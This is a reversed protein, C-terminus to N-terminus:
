RIVTVRGIFQRTELTPLRVIIKYSYVDIPINDLIGRSGDGWRADYNNTRFIQEGWRNFIYMEYSVFGEGIGAFADNVGDGDPTFTNPIWMNFPPYSFIPNVVTDKCAEENSAILRVYFLGTDPFTYVPNQFISTGSNDGFDWDWQVVDSFSLDNFQVTSHDLYDVSFVANV